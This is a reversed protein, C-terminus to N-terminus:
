RRHLAYVPRRGFLAAAPVAVSDGSARSGGIYTRVDEGSAASVVRVIRDDAAFVILPEPGAAYGISVIAGGRPTISKRESTSDRDWLQITGDAGGTVISRADSSFAASIIRERGSFVRVKSGRAVDWLAMEQGFTLVNAGDPSFVAGSVRGVANFQRKNRRPSVPDVLEWLCLTDNRESVLTSETEGSVTLAHHGDPSIAVHTIWGGPAVLTYEVLGTSAEM